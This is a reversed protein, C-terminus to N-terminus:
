LIYAKLLLDKASPDDRFLKELAARTTGAATQATGSNADVDFGLVDTKTKQMMGTPSRFAVQHVNLGAEALANSVM